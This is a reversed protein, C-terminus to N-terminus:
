LTKLSSCHIYTEKSEDRSAEPKFFQVNKFKEKALKKVDLFDQGMFLKAIVIGDNKLIKSSFTIVEMCLQNTRICDLDKNGTTNAAMDSIIVDLKCGFHELIKSKTEKEFFDCRIFSVNKVEEMNKIDISLVKGKSINKIAVQAWGGPSSGIDLLNNNKKLFKFKKNLEILKFASRSRYGLTKSKKFFPDRHQKIVWTRSKKSRKTKKM